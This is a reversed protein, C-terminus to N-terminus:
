DARVRAARRAVHAFALALEYPTPPRSVPPEAGRPALVPENRPPADPVIEFESIVIPM